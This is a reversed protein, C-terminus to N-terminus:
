SWRTGETPFDLVRGTVLGAPGAVTVATGTVALDNRLYGMALPAGHAFSWAASTIRGAAAGELLPWSQGAPPSPLPDDLRMLSLRRKLSKYTIMRAIVEQGPYCGKQFGISGDLRAELPNAAETLERGVLPEGRELRMADDVDAGVRIAGGKELRGAVTEAVEKPMMLWFNPRSGRRAVAVTTSIGGITGDIIAAEGTTAVALGTAALVEPARPGALEFLRTSEDLLEPMVDDMIVMRDVWALDDSARGPGTVLLLQNDRRWLALWDLIRGTETQMVTTAFGGIPLGTLDATTTRHLLDLADGGKLVLRGRDSRDFLAAEDVARRWAAQAAETVPPFM